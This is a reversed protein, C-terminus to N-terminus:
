LLELFEENTLGAQKIISELTRRKLDRNHYPVIVRLAPSQTHKLIYHSGSTRAVFFSARKLTRIVDKPRVVPITRKM